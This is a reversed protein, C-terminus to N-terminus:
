YFCPAHIRRRPPPRCGSFFQPVFPNSGAAGHSFVPNIVGVLATMLELLVILMFAARTGSLRTRVFQLVSRPRGSPVFAETKQFCLCIGTFSNYLTEMPVRVCGRAPDNIVADNGRFGCLVVFHNMNWHLICPMPVKRLEEPELRYGDAKLGDNRAAMLIFKAKSGDRSVGCATRVQELPLWKGHYALVMTLCAAGCELAEMQMVVPVKVWQKAM